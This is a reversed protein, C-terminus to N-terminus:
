QVSLINAQDVRLFGGVTLLAPLQVRVLSHATNIFLDGAISALAPM